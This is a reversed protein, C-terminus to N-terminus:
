FKVNKTNTGSDFVPIVVTREIPMDIKRGSPNKSLYTVVANNGVLKINSFEIKKASVSEQTIAGNGVLKNLTKPLVIKIIANDKGVVSEYLGILGSVKSPNYNKTLDDIEIILKHKENSIWGDKQISKLHSSLSDDSMVSSSTVYVNQLLGSPKYEDKPPAKDIASDIASDELCSNFFVKYDTGYPYSVNGKSDVAVYRIEVKQGKQGAPCAVVRDEVNITKDSDAKCSSVDNNNTLVFNTTTQKTASSYSTVYNGYKVVEGQYTGKAVGYYSDCTVTISGPTTTINNNTPILVCSNVDLVEHQFPTSLNYNIDQGDLDKVTYNENSYYAVWKYRISGTYGEQCLEVRKSQNVNIGNYACTNSGVKWATYNRKSGDSWIEYTRTQTIQGFQGTFCANVRNETETSKYIPTSDVCNNKITANVWGHRNPFYKDQCNNGADNLYSCTYTITGTQGAPCAVTKPVHITRRTGGDAYAYQASCLILGALLIKRIYKM